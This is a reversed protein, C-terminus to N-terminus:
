EDGKFLSDIDFSDEKYRDDELNGSYQLHILALLNWAAHGLHSHKSESDKEEGFWYKWLHRIACNFYQSAPGGKKWNNKGYKSAGFGGVKSVELLGLLPLDDFELKGKNFRKAKDTM